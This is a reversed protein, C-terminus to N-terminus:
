IAKICASANINNVLAIAALQGHINIVGDKPEFEAFVSLNLGGIDINTQKLEFSNSGMAMQIQENPTWIDVDGNLLFCGLMDKSLLVVNGRDIYHSVANNKDMFFGYSLYMDVFTMGTSLKGLYHVGNKGQEPAIESVEYRRINNIDMFEKNKLLAMYADIGLLMTDPVGGGSAIISETAATIDKLPDAGTSANWKTSPIITNNGSRGYELNKLGAAKIALNGSKFDVKGNQLLYCLLYEITNQTANVIGSTQRQIYELAIAVNKTNDAEGRGLGRNFLDAKNIPMIEKMYPIDVNIETDVGLDIIDWEGGAGKVNSARNKVHNPYFKYEKTNVYEIATSTLLKTINNNPEDISTFVQGIVYRPNPTTNAAYIDKRGNKAAYLAVANDITTTNIAQHEDKM